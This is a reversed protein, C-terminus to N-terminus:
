FLFFDMTLYFLRYSVKHHVNRHKLDTLRYATITSKGNQDQVLARSSYLEDTAFQCLCMQKPAIAIPRNYFTDMLIKFISGHSSYM